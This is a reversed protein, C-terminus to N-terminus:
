LSIYPPVCYLLLPFSPLRQRMRGVASSSSLVLFMSYVINLTNSIILRPSETESISVIHEDEISEIYKM